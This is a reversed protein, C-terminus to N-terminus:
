EVRTASHGLVALANGYPRYSRRTLIEMLAHFLLNLYFLPKHRKPLFREAVLVRNRIFVARVQEKDFHSGITAAHQHRCSTRTTYLSRWGRQSARLSLDMDEFYFPAYREDYGNLLELKTRDMLAVGGCLYMTEGEEDEGNLDRYGIKHSSVVPEKRGEQIAGTKPDLIACSIGFTDAAMMPLLVELLNESVEMDTNLMLIYDMKAARIGRNATISFGRNQDTTLVRVEPYTDRLWIVSDDESADDAVIIEWAEVTPNALARLVSPLYAEM